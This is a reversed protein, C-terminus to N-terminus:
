FPSRGRSSESASTRQSTAGIPGPGLRRRLSSTRQNSLRLRCGAYTNCGACLFLSVTEGFHHFRTTQLGGVSAFEARKESRLAARALGRNGTIARHAAA